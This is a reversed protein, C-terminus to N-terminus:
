NFVHEFTGADAMVSFKDKFETPLPNNMEHIITANEYDSNDISETTQAGLLSFFPESYRSDDGAIKGMDFPVAFDVCEKQLQKDTLHLEQCGITIVDKFDVELQKALLQLRIGNIDLGM